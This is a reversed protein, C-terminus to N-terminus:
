ERCVELFDGQISLKSLSAAQVIRGKLFAPIRVLGATLGKVIVVLGVLKFVDSRGLITTQRVIRARLVHKATHVLRELREKAPYLKALIGTIRSEFRVTPEAANGEGGVTIADTEVSLSQPYLSDPTDLDLKVSRQNSIDLSGREFPFTLLPKHAEGHLILGLQKRRKGVLNPNIHTQRIEGGQGVALRNGVGSEVFEGLRFKPTSLALNSPTLLTGVTAVLRYGQKLFYMSSDFILAVLELVLKGEPQDPVKSRNRNFVKVDLAQCRPHKGLRNM